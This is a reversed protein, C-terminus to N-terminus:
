PSTIHRVHWGTLLGFGAICDSHTTTSSFPLTECFPPISNTFELDKDKLVKINPLACSCSSQFSLNVRHPCQCHTKHCPKKVLSSRLFLRILKEFREPHHHLEM